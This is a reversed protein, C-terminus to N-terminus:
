LNGKTISIGLEDRVLALVDLPGIFSPGDPTDGYREGNWFGTKYFSRIRKEWPVAQGAGEENKYKLFDGKPSKPPISSTSSYTSPNLPPNLPPNVGQLKRKSNGITPNGGKKGNKQAIALVREDRVMRRSYIRGKADRSFVGNTELENLLPSLEAAPHGTLQSLDDLNLPRGNVSLHGFPECKAAIAMLDMWFGKAAYCCLRLCPDNAWDNWYFISRPNNPNNLKAM